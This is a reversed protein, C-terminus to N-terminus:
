TLTYPFSLIWHGIMLGGNDSVKNRIKQRYIRIFYNLKMVKSKMRLAKVLIM